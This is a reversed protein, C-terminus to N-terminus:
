LNVARSVLQRLLSFDGGDAARLSNYYVAGQDLTISDRLGFLDLVQQSLLIRAVRGNGDHFPHLAVFAHHFAAIAAIKDSETGSLLEPYRSNWDGLLESLLGAVNKEASLSATAGIVGGIWPISSLAAVVFRAYKRSQSAGLKESLAEQAAELRNLVISHTPLNQHIM